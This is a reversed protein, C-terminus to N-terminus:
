KVPTSNKLCKKEIFKQYLEDSPFCCSGLVKFNPHAKRFDNKAVEISRGTGVTHFRTLGVGSAYLVIKKM